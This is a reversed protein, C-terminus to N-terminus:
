RNPTSLLQPWMKSVVIPLDSTNIRWCLPQLNTAAYSEGAQKQTHTRTGWWNVAEEYSISCIISLGCLFGKVANNLASCRVGMKWLSKFTGSPHSLKCISGWKQSGIETISHMTLCLLGKVSGKHVQSTANWRTVLITCHICYPLQVAQMGTPLRIDGLTDLAHASWHGANILFVDRKTTSLTYGHSLMKFANVQEHWCPHWIDSVVSVMECWQRKDASLQESPVKVTDWQHNHSHEETFYWM